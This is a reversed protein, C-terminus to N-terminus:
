LMVGFVVAAIIAYNAMYYKLNQALRKEWFVSSPQSYSGRPVVILFAGRPALMALRVTAWLWGIDGM